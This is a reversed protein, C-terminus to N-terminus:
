KIETAQSWVVQWRGGAKRYVDTHWHPLRALPKGGLTVQLESRYRVAALPGAIRVEIPGPEWAVYDLYGSSLAQMYQDRTLTRGAPNVLQFDEAHLPRAAEVDGAVLLELRRREFARIVEEESALPRGGTALPACSSALGAALVLLAARRRQLSAADAM